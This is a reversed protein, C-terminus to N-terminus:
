IAVASIALVALLLLTWWIETPVATNSWSRGDDGTTLAEGAREHSSCRSRRAPLRRPSDPLWRRHESQLSLKVKGGLLAFTSRPKRSRPGTGLLCCPIPCCAADPYSM